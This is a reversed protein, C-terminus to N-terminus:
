QVPEGDSARQSPDCVSRIARLLAQLDVPKELRINDRFTAPLVSSDYGTAFISPTGRQQLESALNFALNCHLNIDLVACDLPETRILALSHEISPSPGLVEAGSNRLTTCIEHAIFYDDEVVLVRLGALPAGEGIRANDTM